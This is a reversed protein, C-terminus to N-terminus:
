SVGSFSARAKEPHPFLSTPWDRTVRSRAISSKSVKELFDVDPDRGRESRAKKTQQYSRDIFARLDANKLLSTYTGEVIIADITRPRHM